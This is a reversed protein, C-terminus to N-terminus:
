VGMELTHQTIRNIYAAVDFKRKCGDYSMYRIKGFIDREPWARDHVGGVSWACGVYGNPDRGDLAYRDNLYIAEALAEEPSPTWELIKKAWYMRLYGHMKGCSVMERQAANWLDDHTEAAELQERTYLYRRPDGRHETLTKRAWDPFGDFSDYHPNHLCFNDSLERRVILEEFFAEQSALAQDRPAVDLAVRQASLQGFHLYPSLGSQGDLTPDNRQEDYGALRHSLFADLTARAAEEGARVGDIPGISRDVRLTRRAAHWDIEPIMMDCRFPHKAVKPFPTLVDPLLRHIKPRITYAAYELKDSVEWVPVVNHADVEYVPATVAESVSRRWHRPLRLPSFDTVIAAVNTKRAYRVVARVPEGRLLVLPINLKAASVQVQELGTLMFCYQRLTADLFRPVLNFVILLPRRQELAVQQAFLLAWNDRVRQDRSMWYIVPGPGPAGESLVRWRRPDIGAGHRAMM